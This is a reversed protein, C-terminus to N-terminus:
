RRAFREIWAAFAALFKDLFECTEAVALSGDEAFLKAGGGVYAEAAWRAPRAPWM